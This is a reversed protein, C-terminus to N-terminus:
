KKENEDNRWRYGIGYVTEIPCSKGELLVKKRIRSMNTTLTKSDVYDENKDWIEYLLSERTVLCGDNEILRRLIEFETRTAELNKGKKYVQRNQIDVVFSGRVIRCNTQSRQYESRRLQAMIRLELETFSFPKTVYDDGGCILGQSLSAEDNYITIFIIPMYYKNRIEQCLEFGNCDTLNVDLLCLDIHNCRLIETTDKKGASEFILYKNGLLQRLSWRISFDDDIILINQM